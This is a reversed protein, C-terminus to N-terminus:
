CSVRWDLFNMDEHKEILYFSPVATAIYVPSGQRIGGM